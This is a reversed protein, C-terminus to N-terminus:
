LGKKGHERCRKRKQGGGFRHMPIGHDVRPIDHALVDVRNYLRASVCAVLVAEEAIVGDVHGSGGGIFKERATGRVAIWVVQRNVTLKM